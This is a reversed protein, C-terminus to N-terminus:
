PMLCWLWNVICSILFNLATLLGGDCVGEDDGLSVDPVEATAAVSAATRTRLRGLNRTSVVMCGDFM